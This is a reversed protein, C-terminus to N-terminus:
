TNFRIGQTILFRPVNSVRPTPPVIPNPFLIRNHDHYAILEDRKEYNFDHFKYSYITIGHKNACRGVCIDEETFGTIDMDKMCGLAVASLYYFPGGCYTYGRYYTPVGAYDSTNSELFTLLKPVNVVVDDDVKIVFDPNFQKYVFRFGARIKEPLGLYTDSCRLVCEHTEPKFEYNTTLQTNGRIIVYEINSPLEKIWHLKDPRNSSYCSTLM